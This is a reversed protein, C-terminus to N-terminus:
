TIMGTPARRSTAITVRTTSTSSASIFASRVMTARGAARRRIFAVSMPVISSEDNLCPTESNGTSSLGTYKAPRASRSAIKPGMSCPSPVAGSGSFGPYQMGIPSDATTCPRGMRISGSAKKPLCAATKPLVPDPFDQVMALRSWDIRACGPTFRVVHTIRSVLPSYRVANWICLSSPVHSSMPDPFASYMGDSGACVPSRRTIGYQNM